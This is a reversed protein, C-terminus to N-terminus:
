KHGSDERKSILFYKIQTKIKVFTWPLNPPKLAIWSKSTGLFKFVTCM